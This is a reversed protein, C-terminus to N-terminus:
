AMYSDAFEGTVYDNIVQQFTRRSKQSLPPFQFAIRGRSKRVVQALQSIDKITEGLKFKLTVAVEDNMGFLREDARILTGGMSWNQVPYVNNNIIVVCRDAERRSHRRKIAHEHNNNKAKLHSFLHGFVM